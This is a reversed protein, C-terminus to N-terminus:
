KPNESIVQELLVKTEAENSITFDKLIRFGSVLGSLAAIAIGLRKTLDPDASNTAVISGLIALGVLALTSFFDIWSRSIRMCVIACRYYDDELGLVNRNLDVKSEEM